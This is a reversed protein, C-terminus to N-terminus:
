SLLLPLVYCYLFEMRNYGRHNGRHGTRAMEPQWFHQHLKAYLPEEGPMVRFHFGEVGAYPSWPFGPPQVFSDLNDLLGDKASCFADVGCRACLLAPRLDYYTSVAPALLIIREVSGSPLCEAAALVVACGASYGALCIAINPYAARWALVAQALLAGKERHYDADRIDRAASHSEPHVWHVTRVKWPLGALALAEGFGESIETGGGSGTAVFLVGCHAPPTGQVQAFLNGESLCWL